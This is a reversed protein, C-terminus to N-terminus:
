AEFLGATEFVENGFREEGGALGDGDDAVCALDAVEAGGDRFAGVGAEGEVVELGQGREPDRALYVTAMGGAGLESEIRYHSFTRGIM